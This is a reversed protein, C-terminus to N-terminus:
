RSRERCCNYGRVCYQSHLRAVGRAGVTVRFCPFRVRSRLCERAHTARAFLGLGSQTPCAGVQFKLGADSVIQVVRQYATFNYQQPAQEVLGWWTDGMIGTVGASKLQQLSNALGEPDVVENNNSIVTLPLQFRGPM